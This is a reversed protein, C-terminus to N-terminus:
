AAVAIALRVVAPQLQQSGNFALHQRAAVGRWMARLEKAHERVLDGPSTGAGRLLTPSERDALFGHVDEDEVDARRGELELQDVGISGGDGPLAVPSESAALDLSDAALRNERELGNARPRYLGRRRNAVM